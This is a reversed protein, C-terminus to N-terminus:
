LRIGFLISGTLFSSSIEDFIIPSFGAGLYYKKGVPKLVGLEVMIGNPSYEYADDFKISKGDIAYAYTWVSGYGLGGSLMLSKSINWIAGGSITFLGHQVSNQEYFYDYPSDSEVDFKSKFNFNTNMKAYWGWKKVQGYMISLSGPLGLGVMTFHQPQYIIKVKEIKLLSSRKLGQNDTTIIQSYGNAFALLLLLIILNNKKM